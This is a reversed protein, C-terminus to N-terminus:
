SGPAGLTQRGHPVSWDPEVGDIAIREIGEGWRADPPEDVALPYTDFETTDRFAPVGYLDRAYGWLNPFAPLGGRVVRAIRNYALDFRALTPWLRIDSETVSDGFLYRRDALREDLGRLAGAVGGRLEDYERQTVAGGVRYVGDNVHDYIFANLEDIEPRLAVPYLDVPSTAWAGFETALDLTILAFDNSVIRRTARDWLVPTSIHGAFGPETAEYAELLLTFGNVPDHGRKERFAWGRADREDDVCSLSVVDELGMLARVIATRQAWGCGRAIYLHYRDPEARYGSSGDATVRNRFTYDPRQWGSRGSPLRGPGYHGYREYDVPTAYHRAGGPSLTGVSDQAAPEPRTM